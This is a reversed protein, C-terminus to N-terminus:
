GTEAFQWRSTVIRVPIALPWFFQAGKPTAFAIPVSALFVVAIPVVRALARSSGARERHSRPRDGRWQPRPPAVGNV